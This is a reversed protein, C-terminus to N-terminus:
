SAYGIVAVPGGGQPGQHEARTSVYVGTEGTIGALLASVVCRSYRMDSIDADTWMTHRRHRIHGRPDADSKAFVALVKEADVAALQGNVPQLGLQNLVAHIAAVDIIDRMVEHAIVLDGEWWCSNAFLVIESRRLLPKASVSARSSYLSWDQNIVDDSLESETVEGLALAVGLASAGRSWAMDCRLHEGRVNGTTTSDLAPIAGKIQVLHVDAPEVQLTHMLRTVARATERVMVMRGVEQASFPRTHASALALRKIPYAQEAARGSVTFVLIHPAAVGESGGSFSLVVREEVLEPSCDLHTALVQSVAMMALTRTFDNIGGNGETKGIIAVISQPDIMGEAIARALGSVDAPDTTFFRYVSTRM